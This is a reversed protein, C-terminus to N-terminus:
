LNKLLKTSVVKNGDITLILGECQELATNMALLGNKTAAAGIAPILVEHGVVLVHSRETLASRPLSWGNKGYDSLIQKANDVTFYKVLPVNGLLSFYKIIEKSYKRPIGVEDAIMAPCSHCTVIDGTQRAREEPSSILLDVSPYRKKLNNGFKRALLKGEETLAGDTGKLSHRMLTVYKLKKM